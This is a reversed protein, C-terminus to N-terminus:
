AYREKTALYNQRVEDATLARNYYSISGIKANIYYINQTAYRGIRNSTGATSLSGSYSTSADLNGNVYVSFVPTSTCTGCYFYWKNLDPSVNGILVRDFGGVSRLFSFRNTGNGDLGVWWNRNTNSVEKNSITKWSGSKSSFNVWCCISMDTLDLNTTGTTIYENSGDFSLSGVNASSFNTAYDMNTMFGDNGGKSVDLWSDPRLIKHPAVEPSGSSGEGSYLDNPSDDGLGATDSSYQITLQNSGLNTATVTYTYISLVTSAGGAGADRKEVIVKDNTQAGTPTTSYTVTYSPGSGTVSSVSISEILTGLSEGTLSRRNAADLCLVLGDTVIRPSHGLGM